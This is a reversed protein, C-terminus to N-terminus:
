YGEGDDEDEYDDYDDLHGEAEDAEVLDEYPSMGPKRIPLVQDYHRAAGGILLSRVDNAIYFDWPDSSEWEEVMNVAVPFGAHLKAKNVPDAKRILAILMHNFCPSHATSLNLLEHFIFIEKAWEQRVRAYESVRAELAEAEVRAETEEPLEIKWTM